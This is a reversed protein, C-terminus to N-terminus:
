PPRLCWMAALSGQPSLGLPRTSSRAHTYRARLTDVHQARPSDAHLAHLPILMNHLAASCCAVCAPFTAHLARTPVADLNVSHILTSLVCPFLTGRVCPFLTGRVRDTLPYYSAASQQSYARHETNRILTDHLM